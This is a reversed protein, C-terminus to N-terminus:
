FDPFIILNKDSKAVKSELFDSFSISKFCSILIDMEQMM